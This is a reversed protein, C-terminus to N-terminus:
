RKWQLIELTISIQFAAIQSFSKSPFFHIYRSMLKLDRSITCQSLMLAL